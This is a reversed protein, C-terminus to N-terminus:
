RDSDQFAAGSELVSSIENMKRPGALRTIEPSQYGAAKLPAIIDTELDPVMSRLMVLGASAELRCTGIAAPVLVTQGRTLEVRPAPSDTKMIGHGSIVTLVEFRSGDPSVPWIGDPEIRELAFYRGAALVTVTAGARRYALGFFPDKAVPTLDLVELAKEVHLERSRGSEDVRGWDFFRYTLDANQQIEFITTGPGYAHLRGPHIYLAQGSKLPCKNLISEARGDALARVIMSRDYGVAPDLVMEADPEAHMVYAAEAKGPGSGELRVASDNDPHVQVSLYTGSHLFKLLLPFPENERGAWSRGMLDTGWIRRLEALRKGALPGNGAVSQFAGDSTLWVEGM